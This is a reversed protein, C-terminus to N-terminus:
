RTWKERPPIPKIMKRGTMIDTVVRFQQQQSASQNQIPTTQMQQTPMQQVPSVGRQIERIMRARVIQQAMEPPIGRQTMVQARQQQVKTATLQRSRKKAKILKNYEVAPIRQVQLTFPHVRLKAGKPRGVPRKTEGVRKGSSTFKPPQMVKAIGKTREVVRHIRAGPSAVSKAIQKAEAKFRRGVKQIKRASTQLRQRFTPAAVVKKTAAVKERKIMEAKWPQIGDRAPDFPKCDFKNRTGDFDVDGQPNLRPFRKKTQKWNYDLFTGTVNAKTVPNKLRIGDIFSNKRKM